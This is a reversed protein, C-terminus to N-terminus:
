PMSGASDIAKESGYSGERRLQLRRRQLAVVPAARHPTKNEM